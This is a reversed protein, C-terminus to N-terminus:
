VHRKRLRKRHFEREARSWECVPPSGALVCVLTGWGLGGELTWDGTEGLFGWSVGAQVTWVVRSLKEVVSWKRGDYKVCFQGFHLSRGRSACGVSLILSDVRRESWCHTCSHYDPSLSRLSGSAVWPGNYLCWCQGAAWTGGEQPSERNSVAVCIQVLGVQCLSMDTSRVGLPASFERMLHAKSIIYAWCPWYQPYIPDGRM